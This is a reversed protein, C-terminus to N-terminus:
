IQNITFSRELPDVVDTYAIATVDLRSRDLSHLSAIQRDRSGATHHYVFGFHDLCVDRGAVADNVDDVADHHRVSRLVSWPASRDASPGNKVAIISASGPACDSM